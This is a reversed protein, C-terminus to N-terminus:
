PHAARDRRPRHRTWPSSGPRPPPTAILREDGDNLAAELFAIDGVHHVVRGTGFLRGPGAPRLFSATLELASQFQDPRLTALLAPGVPRSDM